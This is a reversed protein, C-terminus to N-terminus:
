EKIKTVTVIRHTAVNIYDGDCLRICSMGNTFSNVQRCDYETGDELVVHEDCRLNEQHIFYAVVVVTVILVSSVVIYELNNKISNM